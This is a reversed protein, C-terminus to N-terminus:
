VDTEGRKTAMTSISLGSVRSLMQMADMAPWPRLESLMMDEYERGDDPMLCFFPGDGFTLRVLVGDPRQEDIFTMIPPGMIAEGMAM